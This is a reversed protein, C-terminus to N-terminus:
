VYLEDLLGADFLKKVSMGALLPNIGHQTALEDYLQNYTKDGQALLSGIPGVTEKGQFHHIQNPSILDFGDDTPQYKLDDRFRAKADPMPSLPMNREILSGVVEAFDEADTFTASDHIRYGYKWQKTTYCPSVIQVTRNVLNILFGSVCAISGQPVIGELYNEKTRERMGQHEKVIRGGSVKERSHDKMQMLLDVDRLEQPTYLDHIRFLMEKNLVSFRPWPLNEERYFAILSRVWPADDPVATSTCVSHGTIQKFDKVFDLYHPNDHPETGYYLLALGTERRGFLQTCATTVARFFAGDKTYDLNNQLKRAAFACFWCGVNCGDGLEIALLPHDIVHGFHGLESKASEMRRLRWADFRPNAPVLQVMNRTARMLEIKKAVYRFWLAMLPTENLLDMSRQSLDNSESQCAQLFDSQLQTNEWFPSLEQLNLDIGIDVMRNTQAVSFNGSNLADAFDPDGETWEFLRKLQVIKAQENESFGDMLSHYPHSEINKSM